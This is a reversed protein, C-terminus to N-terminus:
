KKINSTRSKEYKKVCSHHVAQSQISTKGEVQKWILMGDIAKVTVVEKMATM